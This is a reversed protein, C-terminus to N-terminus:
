HTMNNNICYQRRFKLNIFKRNIIAKWLIKEARTSQKRLIKACQLLKDKQM